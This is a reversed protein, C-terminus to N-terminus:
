PRTATVFLNARRFLRADLRQPADLLRAARDPLLLAPVQLLRWALGAGDRCQPTFGAAVVLSLLDEARYNTHEARDWAM